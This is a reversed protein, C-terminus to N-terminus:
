EKGKIRDMQKSGSLIGSNKSEVNTDEGNLKRVILNKCLDEESPRLWPLLLEELYLEEDSPPLIESFVELGEESDIVFSHSPYNIALKTLNHKNKISGRGNQILMGGYKIALKLDRQIKGLRPFDVQSLASDIFRCTMDTVSKLISEAPKKLNALYPISDRSTISIENFSSLFFNISQSKIMELSEMINLSSTHFVEGKELIQADLPGLEAISNMIISDAGVAILTGASKCYGALYVKFPKYIKQFIKAIKYAAHPDGGFTSLFLIANRRNKGKLLAMIQELGLTCIPGCYAFIDSNYKIALEQSRERIIDM